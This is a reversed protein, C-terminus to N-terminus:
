SLFAFKKLQSSLTSFQSNAVACTIPAFDSYVFCKVGICSRCCVRCEVNYFLKADMKLM